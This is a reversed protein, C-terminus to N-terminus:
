ELKSLLTGWDIVPPRQGQNIIEFVKRSSSPQFLCEVSASAVDIRSTDGSLQDGTGVIVGYKGGIEDGPCPASNTIAIGIRTAFDACDDIPSRWFSFSM